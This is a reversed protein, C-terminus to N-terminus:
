EHPADFKLQGNGLQRGPRFSALIVAAARIPCTLGAIRYLGDCLPRLNQEVCGDGVLV